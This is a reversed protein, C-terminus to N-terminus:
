ATRTKACHKTFLLVAFLIFIKRTLCFDVVRTNKTAIKDGTKAWSIRVESKSWFEPTLNTKPSLSFVSCFVLGFLSTVMTITITSHLLFFTTLQFFLTKQSSVSWLTSLSDTDSILFTVEYLSINISSVMMKPWMTSLSIWLFYTMLLARSHQGEKIRSSLPQNTLMNSM